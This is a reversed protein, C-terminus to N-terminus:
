SVIFPLILCDQYLTAMECVQLSGIFPPYYLVSSDMIVNLGRKIAKKTDEAEEETLVVDVQRFVAGYLLTFLM